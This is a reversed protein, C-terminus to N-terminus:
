NGAEPQTQHTKDLCSANVEEQILHDSKRSSRQCASMVPLAASDILPEKQLFYPFIIPFAVDQESSTESNTQLIRTTM